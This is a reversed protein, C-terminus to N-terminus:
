DHSRTEEVPPGAKGTSEIPIAFLKSTVLTNVYVRKGLVSIGDLVEATPGFAGAGVRVELATAGRKLRVVDMNNTDTAYATGDTVVAVYTVKPESPHWRHQGHQERRERRRDGEHAETTGARAPLRYGASSDRIRLLPLNKLREIGGTAVRSGSVVDLSRYIQFEPERLREIAELEVHGPRTTCTAKADLECELVELTNGSSAVGGHAGLGAAAAALQYAISNRSPCYM